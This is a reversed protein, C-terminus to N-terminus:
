STLYYCPPDYGAAIVTLYKTVHTAHSIHVASLMVRALAVTQTVTQQECVVFYFPKKLGEQSLLSQFVLM